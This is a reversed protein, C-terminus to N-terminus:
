RRRPERAMQRIVNKDQEKDNHKEHRTMKIRMVTRQKNQHTKDKEQLEGIRTIMLQTSMKIRAQIIMIITTGLRM